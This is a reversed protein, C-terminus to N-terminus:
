FQFEFLNSRLHYTVKKKKLFLDLKFTYLYLLIYRSTDNTQMGIIRM